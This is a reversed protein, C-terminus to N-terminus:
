LTYQCMVQMMPLAYALRKRTEAPDNERENKL